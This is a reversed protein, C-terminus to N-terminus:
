TSFGTELNQDLPQCVAVPLALEWCARSQYGCALALISPVVSFRSLRNRLEKGDAYFRCCQVLIKDLTAIM